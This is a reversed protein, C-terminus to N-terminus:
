PVNHVSLGPDFWDVGIKAKATRGTYGQASLVLVEWSTGQRRELWRELSGKPGLGQFM